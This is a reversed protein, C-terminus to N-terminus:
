NTLLHFFSVSITLVQSALRLCYAEFGAVTMSQQGGVVRNEFDRVLRNWGENSIVRQDWALTVPLHAAHSRAGENLDKNLQNVNTRKLVAAAAAATDGIGAKSAYRAFIARVASRGAATLREATLPAPAEEEAEQAARDDSHRVPLLTPLAAHTRLSPSDGGGGKRWPRSRAAALTDQEAAAAAAGGGKGPPKKADDDDKEKAKAKEEEKEDDDDGSLVGDESYRSLSARLARGLRISGEALPENPGYFDSSVRPRAPTPTPPALPAPPPPGVLSHRVMLQALLYAHTQALPASRPVPPPQAVRARQAAELLTLSELLLTEAGTDAWPMTLALQWKTKVLEQLADVGVAHKAGGPCFHLAQEFHTAADTLLLARCAHDCNHLAPWSGQEEEAFSAQDWGQTRSRAGGGERGRGDGDGDGGGSEGGESSNRSAAGSSITRFVGPSRPAALPLSLVMEDDDYEDMTGAAPQLCELRPTAGGESDSGDGGSGEDDDSWAIRQQQRQQQWSLEWATPDGPAFAGHAELLMSLEATTSLVHGWNM